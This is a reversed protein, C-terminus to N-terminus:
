RDDQATLFSTRFNAATKPVLDAYYLQGHSFFNWSAFSIMSLLQRVGVLLSFTLLFIVGRLSLFSGHEWFQKGPVDTFGRGARVGIIGNVNCSTGTAM